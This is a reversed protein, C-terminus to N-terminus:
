RLKYINSGLWGIGGLVEFLELTAANANVYDAAMLYFIGIRCSVLVAILAKRRSFHQIQPLITTNEITADRV